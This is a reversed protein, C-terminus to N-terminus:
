GAPAQPKARQSSSTGHAACVDRKRVRHRCGNEGLAKVPVYKGLDVGFRDCREKKGVAFIGDVHVVLLLAVKGEVLRFVCSDALCQEFGLSLLCKKLLAYWERSAQRLGYLSKNLQVIKGSLARWVGGTISHM